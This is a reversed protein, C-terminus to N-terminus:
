RMWEAESILTGRSTRCQLCDRGADTEVVACIDCVWRRCHRCRLNDLGPQIDDTGGMYEDQCNPLTIECDECRAVGDEEFIPESTMPPIPTCITWFNHLSPQRQPLPPRSPPHFTTYAIQVPTKARSAAFLKQYTNATPVDTLSDTTTKLFAHGCCVIYQRRVQDTTVTGRGLAPGLTM